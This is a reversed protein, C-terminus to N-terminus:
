RDIYLEKKLLDPKPLTHVTIDHIQAYKHQTDTTRSFDMETPRRLHHSKVPTEM